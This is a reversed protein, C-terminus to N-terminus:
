WIIAFEYPNCNQMCVQTVMFPLTMLWSATQLSLSQRGGTFTLFTPFPLMWTELRQTWDTFLHRIITDTTIFFSEQTTSSRSISAAKLFRSLSSKPGHRYTWTRYISRLSSHPPWLCPRGRRFPQQTSFRSTTQSGSMFISMVTSYLLLNMTRSRSGM